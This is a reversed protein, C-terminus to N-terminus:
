VDGQLVSDTLDMEILPQQVMAEDVRWDAPVQVTRVSNAGGVMRAALITGYTTAPTGGAVVTVMRTCGEFAENLPRQLQHVVADLVHPLRDIVLPKALQAVPRCEGDGDLHGRGALWWSALENVHLTDTAQPELQDTVVLVLRQLEDPLSAEDLVRRLIPMDLHLFAKVAREEPMLGHLVRVCELTTARFNAPDIRPFPGPDSAAVVDRTGMPAVLLTPESTDEVVLWGVTHPQDLEKDERVLDAPQVEALYPHHELHVEVGRRGGWGVVEGVHSRGDREFSVLSGLRIRRGDGGVLGPPFIRVPPTVIRM